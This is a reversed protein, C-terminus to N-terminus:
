DMPCWEQIDGFGHIGLVLWPFIVEWSGCVHHLNWISLVLVISVFDWLFIDRNQAFKNLSQVVELMPLVCTLGMVIEVDCLLKYFKLILLQMILWM